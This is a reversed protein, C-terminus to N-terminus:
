VSGARIRPVRRRQRVIWIASAAAVLVAPPIWAWLRAVPEGAGLEKIDQAADESAATRTCIGTELRGASDAFAYVLYTRDVEFEYGCAGGANTSYVRVKRALAGKWSREVRFTSVTSFQLTAGAARSTDYPIEAVALVTGLLVNSASAAADRATSPGVCTCAYAVSSSAALLVTLAFVRGAFRIM